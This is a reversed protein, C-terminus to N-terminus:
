WLMARARFYFLFQTGQKHRSFFHPLSLPFYPHPPHEVFSLTGARALSLSSFLLCVGVTHFMCAYWAPFEPVFMEHFALELPSFLSDLMETFDVSSATGLIGGGFLVGVQLFIFNELSMKELRIIPFFDLSIFNFFNFVPVGGDPVLSLIERCAGGRM